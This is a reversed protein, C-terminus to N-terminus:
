WSIFDLVQVVVARVRVRVHVSYMYMYMRACFLYQVRTYVARQDRCAPPRRRLWLKTRVMHIIFCVCMYQVNYM